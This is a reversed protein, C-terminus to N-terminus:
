RGRQRRRGFLAHSVCASGLCLASLIQKRIQDDGPRCRRWQQARFSKVAVLDHQSRPRHARQAAFQRADDLRQRQGLVDRQGHVNIRHIQTLWPNIQEQGRLEDTM